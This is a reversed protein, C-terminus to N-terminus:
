KEFYKYIYNRGFLIDYQILEYEEILQKNKESLNEQIYNNKEKFVHSVVSFKDALVMMFKMFGNVKVGTNKIVFSPILNLSLFSDLDHEIPFNTWVGFNTQYKKVVMRTFGSEIETDEMFQNYNQISPQHDGVILIMAKEENASFHAILEGTLLDVHKLANFYALTQEKDIALTEGNEIQLTSNPYHSIHWPSHSSNPFAFVFTKSNAELLSIINEAIVQSHVSRGSPDKKHTGRSLGIKNDIGINDYVRRYGFGKLPIAQVVGTAYGNDRFSKALSPIPEDIFEKYPTTEIPTFRNSLGTLVEFEANISKGGYVPSITAGTLHGSVIRDFNPTVSESLRWGYMPPHTFSEVMLIVVKEVRNDSYSTLENLEYKQILNNITSESYSKPKEVKGMFFLAQSFNTVFGYQMSKKILNVNKSYKIGYSRLLLRTSENQFIVVYGFVGIIVALITLSYVKERKKTKIEYYIFSIILVLILVLYPTYVIWVQWTRILDGILVFDSPFLPSGLIKVKLYNGVLFMSYLVLTLIVSLRLRKSLAYIIIITLFVMVQEFVFGITSMQFKAPLGFALRFLHYLLYSLVSFFTQIFILQIIKKM